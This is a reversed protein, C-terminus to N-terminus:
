LLFFTTITVPPPFPTPRAYEKPIARLSSGSHDGIDSCRRRFAYGFCEDIGAPLADVNPEDAFSYM